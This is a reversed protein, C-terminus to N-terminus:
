RYKGQKRQYILIKMSIQMKENIDHGSEDNYQFKRQYELKPVCFHPQLMAQFSFFEDFQRTKKM